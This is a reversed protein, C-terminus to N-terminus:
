ELRKTTVYFNVDANLFTDDFSVSQWKDTPKLVFEKQSASVKLPMNFGKVCNTWRYLLKDKVVKYELEPVKTTRLYQDFIKQLDLRLYAAMYIEIQKTSVTQHWFTRNLDRLMERWLSDNNVIQRMAHLMNAGKYYLDISGGANVNYDSIIPKDNAIAKRTGIVYEAGAKKGYLYETYLNEAYATFSEHIWNDAVDKATISNGFWEHGSEHVIIFDWKFGWGTLSLDRGKYGNMFDNGYAIDSQHEMGLFPAEVLKYSDEYFPYPGFWYEFCHLMTKAQQFQKKARAENGELVWYSLDLLGKEGRITDTFNTYKGIYPIINYNNIPNVVKWFYTESQDANVKSSKLRGNAVAVLGQPATIHVSASDVEDYMHDKNPFWVQAAMGQCAISIWPNGKLDRSWIVGGEWPPLKAVRPKGHFYAVITKLDNKKQIEGIYIFHANGDREVSCKKSDLLVSDLIMPTMLDLQLKANTGLVKYTIKNVGKLSSDANNFTVDLDYHLVDWWAREASVTGKLTDAHTYTQTKIVTSIMLLLTLVPFSIIRSNM